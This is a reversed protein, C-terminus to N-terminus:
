YTVSSNKKNVGTNCDGFRINWKSGITELLSFELEKQFCAIYELKTHWNHTLKNTAEASWKPPMRYAADRTSLTAGKELADDAAFRV